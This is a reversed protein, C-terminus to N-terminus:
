PRERGKERGEQKLVDDGSNALAASLTWGMGTNGRAAEATSGVAWPQARTVSCGGETGASRFGPPSSETRPQTTVSLKLEELM